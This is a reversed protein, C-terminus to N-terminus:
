LNHQFHNLIFFSDFKLKISLAHNSPSSVAGSVPLSSFAEPLVSSLADCASAQLTPHDSSQLARPLPGNLMMTWFMVVQFRPVTLFAAWSV